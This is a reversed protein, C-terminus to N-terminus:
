DLSHQILRWRLTKRTRKLYFFDRMMENNSGNAFDMPLLPRIRSASNGAANLQVLRPDPHQEISPAM